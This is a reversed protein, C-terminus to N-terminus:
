GRRRIESVHLPVGSLSWPTSSDASLSALGGVELEPTGNGTPAVAHRFVVLKGLEPTGNGTPVVLNRSSRVWIPDCRDLRRLANGTGTKGGLGSGVGRRKSIYRGVPM